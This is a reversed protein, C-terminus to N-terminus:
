RTPQAMVAHADRTSHAPLPRQPAPHDLLKDLLGRLARRRMKKLM